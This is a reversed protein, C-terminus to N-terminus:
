WISTSASAVTGKRLGGELFGCLWCSPVMDSVGAVQSVSNAEGQHNGLARGVWSKPGGLSNGSAKGYLHSTKAWEFKGLNDLVVLM